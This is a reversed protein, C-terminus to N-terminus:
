SNRLAIVDALLFRQQANAPTVDVPLTVSLTTRPPRASSASDVPMGQPYQGPRGGTCGTFSTSTTGTCTVVGSAGFSISNAGSSFGATSAVGITANPLTLPNATLKTPGTDAYSTGATNKLLHLGGGDRGYVNYSTAGSYAAWSVNVTNTLGSSVTVSAPVGPVEAGGALVATVDYTYTGSQLNGGSSTSTVTAAQVRDTSFIQGSAVSPSASDVLNSAWKTGTGSCTTGVYRWLTYPQAGAVPPSTGNKDKTCWTV